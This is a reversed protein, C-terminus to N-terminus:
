NDTKYMKTKDKLKQTVSTKSLKLDV